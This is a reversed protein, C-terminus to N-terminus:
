LNEKFPFQYQTQANKFDIALARILMNTNCSPGEVLAKFIGALALQTINTMPFTPDFIVTSNGERDIVIGISGVDPYLATPPAYVNMQAM